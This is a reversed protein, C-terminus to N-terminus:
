SYKPLAALRYRRLQNKGIGLVIGIGLVVHDHFTDGLARFQAAALANGPVAIATRGPRVSLMEEQVFEPVCKSSFVQSVSDVNTGQVRPPAVAVDLRRHHV